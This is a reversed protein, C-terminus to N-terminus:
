LAALDISDGAIVLMGEITASIFNENVGAFVELLCTVETALWRVYDVVSPEGESIPSCLGGISQINREYMM